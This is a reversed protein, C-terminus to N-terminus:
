TVQVGTTTAAAVPVDSGSPILPVYAKSVLVIQTHSSTEPLNDIEIGSWGSGSINAPRQVSAPSTGLPTTFGTDASSYANVIISNANDPVVRTRPPWFFRIGVKGRSQSAANRGGCGVIGLGILVCSALLPITSNSLARKM